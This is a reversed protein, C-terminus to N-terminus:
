DARAVLYDVAGDLTALHEYDSEPLELGTRDHLAGYLSMLDMSDLDLGEAMPSAPDAEDLDVEPAIGRLCDAILTRAEDRTM